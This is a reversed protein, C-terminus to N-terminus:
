LSHGWGKGLSITRMNDLSMVAPDISKRLCSGGLIIRITWMSRDLMMHLLSSSNRLSYVANRLTIPEVKSLEEHCGQEVKIVLDM